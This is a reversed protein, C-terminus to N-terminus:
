SDQDGSVEGQILSSIETIDECISHANTTMVRMIIFSCSNKEFHIVRM